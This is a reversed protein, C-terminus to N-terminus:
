FDHSLVIQLLNLTVNQPKKMDRQSDDDIATLWM